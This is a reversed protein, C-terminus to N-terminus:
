ARMVFGFLCLLVSFCGPVLQATGLVQQKYIGGQPGTKIIFCRWADVTPSPLISNIHRRQHLQLRRRCGSVVTQSYKGSLTTTSSDSLENSFCPNCVAHRAPQVAKNESQQTLRTIQSQGNSGASQPRRTTGQTSALLGALDATHCLVAILTLPNKSDALSKIATRPFIGLPYLALPCSSGPASCLPIARVHRRAHGRGGSRGCWAKARAKNGRSGSDGDDAEAAGEDAHCSSM